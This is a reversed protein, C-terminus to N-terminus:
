AVAAATARCRAALLGFSAVRAHRARVSVARHRRVDQDCASADRAERTRERQRPPAMPDIQELLSDGEAFDASANLEAGVHRPSQLREADRFRKIRM